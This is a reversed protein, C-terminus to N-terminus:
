NPAGSGSSPKGSLAPELHDYPDNDLNARAEAEIAMEEQNLYRWGEPPYVFERTSVGPATVFLLLSGDAQYYPHGIRQRSSPM